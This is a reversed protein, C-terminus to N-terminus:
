NTCSRPTELILCYERMSDSVRGYSNYQKALYALDLIIWGLMGPRLECWSKIDIEGITPVNVKPNLERGIFWDYIINGTAGGQALERKQKNTPEVSFSHLYFFTALFLSILINTTLISVYNEDIFTWVGYTAGEAVTGAALIALTFM